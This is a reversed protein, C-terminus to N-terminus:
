KEMTDAGPGSEEIEIGDAGIITFEVRRNAARGAKTENDAKPQEEGYGVADLREAAIGRKVLYARVANARRQSLDKNYADDGQNDTHGEARVKTIEPHAAIVRAVEDLLSYSRRQIVDRNLAFYVIDLIELKNGVIKVRQKAKCGQNEVVGPEDPCNDVRDRVTDGDRDPDPCGRAEPVGVVDPCADEVDLITDKDNDPDPCGDTDIFGDADEPELPCSDAIGFRGDSDPDPNDPCGDEDQYDNKTEPEAVCRDNPDLLGDGDSDILRPRSPGEKQKATDLRLGVLARWDPTGFGEALGAGLAGFVRVRSTADYAAGARIEAHNRNFAGLVDDAGTAVDLTGDLELSSAFRYAAGLQGFVEDDVMLDLARAEPRVRYGAAAALRLGLAAGRSVLLAPSATVGDDGGYDDSTSTPLTIGVMAAVALPGRRWLTAKPTLRLDGLGFGSLDGSMPALAGLDDSQAVIIPAAVGLEFRDRLHVAGVLDGGLRNSVLSGVRDGDSM